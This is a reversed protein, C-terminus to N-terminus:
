QGKQPAKEPPQKDKFKEKLRRIEDEHEKLQRQIDDSLGFPAALGGLGQVPAALGGLGAVAAAGRKRIAQANEKTTVYFVDDVLVAQLDASDALLRIVTDVAVNQLTVTIPTKGKDQTRGDVVINVGTADAIEQLAERLERKEFVISTEPATVLVPGGAEDPAAEEQRHWAAPSLYRRTTIEVVGGRVAFATGSPVPMRALIRRLVAAPTVNNMKPLPKGITKESINDVQEDKFAQENIEFAIDYVKTLHELADALKVEPDDFGGFNVTAALKKRVENARRAQEATPSEAARAASLPLVSVVTVM